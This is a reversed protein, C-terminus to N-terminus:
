GNKEPKPMLKLWELFTKMFEYSYLGNSVGTMLITTGIIMIWSMFSSSDFGAYIGVNWILGIGLVVANCVTSTIFSILHSVWRKGEKNWLNKFMQTLVVVLASLGAISYIAGTIMDITIVDM